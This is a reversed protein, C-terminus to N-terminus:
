QSFDRITQKKKKLMHIKKLFNKRREVLKHFNKLNKRVIRLHKYKKPNIVVNLLVQQLVSFINSWIWYLGVGIPVFFALFLSLGVSFIMTGYKNANGQEAQLPNLINQMACLFWAALAALIPVLLTIGKSNAPILALSKGFLSMNSKKIDSTLEDMEIDYKQGIKDLKESYDKKKIADVVQMQVSSEDLDFDEIKGITNVIENSPKTDVKFIFTLPNYIVQVLGMLLIIQVLLPIISSFPNYKERKYVKATKEAITEKDGFYKAKIRNIEPTIRVIKVSNKQLWISVPLLIIKTILTFLIIAIAYNSIFKYCLYMLEGLPVSLVDEIFKM